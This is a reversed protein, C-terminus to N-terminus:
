FFNPASSIMFKRPNQKVGNKSVGFHLHAGACRLGTNGVRGIEQGRKVRANKKTLLESLHGYTTVYGDAHAVEIVNGFERDRTARLVQGDASAYVPTGIPAGIDIGNHRKVLGTFPDIRPGFESSIYGGSVPIMSPTNELIDRMSVARGLLSATDYRLKEQSSSLFFISEKANNAAAAADLGLSDSFGCSSKSPAKSTSAFTIPYNQDIDKMVKILEKQFLRVDSAADKIELLEGDISVLNKKLTENESLLTSIRKDKRVLQAHQWSIALALFSIAGLCLKFPTILKSHFHKKCLEM